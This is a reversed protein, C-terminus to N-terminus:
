ISECEVFRGGRVVQVRKRFMDNLVCIRIEVRVVWVVPVVKVNNIQVPTAVEGGGQEGANESLIGNFLIEVYPTARTVRLDGASVGYRYRCVGYGKHTRTQMVRLQIRTDAIGTDGRPYEQSPMALTTSVDV